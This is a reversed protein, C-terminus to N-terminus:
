AFSLRPNNDRPSSWGPSPPLLYLLSAAAFRCSTPSLISLWLSSFAVLSYTLFSFSPVFGTIAGSRLSRVHNCVWLLPEHTNYARILHGIVDDGAAGAINLWRSLDESEGLGQFRFPCRGM